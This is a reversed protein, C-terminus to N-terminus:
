LEPRRQTPNDLVNSSTQCCGQGEGTYAWLVGANCYDLTDVSFAVHGRRPLIVGLKSGTGESSSQKCRLLRGLTVIHLQLAMRSM